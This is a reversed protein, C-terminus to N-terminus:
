LNGVLKYVQINGNTPVAASQQPITRLAFVHVKGNAGQERGSTPM